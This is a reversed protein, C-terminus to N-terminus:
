FDNYTGSENLIGRNYHFEGKNNPKVSGNLKLFSVVMKYSKEFFLIKCAKRIHLINLLVDCLFMLRYFLLM